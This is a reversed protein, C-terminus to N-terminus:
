VTAAVASLVLCHTCNFLLASDCVFFKASFRQTQDYNPPKLLKM